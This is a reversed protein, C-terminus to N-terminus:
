VGKQRLMRVKDVFYDLVERVVDKYHPNKQMTQPTGQIHMLIYPVHLGAIVDFMRADYAGGSIDNIIDAGEQVAAKAISSYFTDVSIVADPLAARILTLAPLLRQSEETDTLQTAGPRTSQAGIDIISAGDGLMREIHKLMQDSNAFRGGDYFSDPTLNVIGMVIPTSLDLLRGRCNLTRKKALFTDQAFM